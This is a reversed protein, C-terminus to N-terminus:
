ETVMASGYDEAQLEAIESTPTFYIEQRPMSTDKAVLAVGRVSFILLGDPKLFSFFKTLWRTFTREPLRTFLSCVFICDYQVPSHLFDPDTTAQLTNVHFQEQQFTAAGKLIDAAWVKEALLDAITFRTSRGYGSAFDLFTEIKDPTGFKWRVFQRIAKNIEIGARFYAVLAIPGGGCIAESYSYMEDQSSIHLDVTKGPAADRIMAAIVPFQPDELGFAYLNDQM